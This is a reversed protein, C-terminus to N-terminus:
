YAQKNQIPKKDPPLSSDPLAESGTLRTMESVGWLDREPFSFPELKAGKTQAYKLDGAGSASAGARALATCYSHLFGIKEM